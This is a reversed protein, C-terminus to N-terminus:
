SCFFLYKKKEEISGRYIIECNNYMIHLRGVQKIDHDEFGLSGLVSPIGARFSHGSIYGVNFNLYKTLWTKLHVNFM